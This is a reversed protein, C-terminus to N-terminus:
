EEVVNIPAGALYRDFNEMTRKYLLKKTDYNGWASHPTFIVNPADMLPDGPKLPENEVVDLGAGAIKGSKLAAILDPESILGGRATNIIFSTPKMLSLTKANVIKATDPTLPCHLSIFDSDSFLQEKSVFEYPLDKKTRSYYIVKMGLAAAIQAFRTGMNGMGIIGATKGYLGTLPYPYYPYEGTFSWKGAKVYDSYKHTNGALMLMFCVAQQVVAETSYSPVNCVTIGRERCAALDIGNYGTAFLGIYKLNKAAEIAKKGIATRNCFVADKDAIAKILEEDSLTYRYECEGYKEFVKLSFDADEMTQKDCLLLKMFTVRGNKNQQPTKGKKYPTIM